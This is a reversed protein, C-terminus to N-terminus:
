TVTTGPSVLDGTCKEDGFVRRYTDTGYSTPLPDGELIKFTRRGDALREARLFLPGGGLERQLRSALEFMHTVYAVRVGAGVMARLIEAAVESGELENTSAFSENCFLFSGARIHTAIENMRALEEDFKGSQMTVDEERKFHTFVATCVNARFHRAPVFAGCQMMMQALGLARLFTSKGGQNAGTVVLLTKGAARVDNGTVPGPARLSLGVDYLDSAELAPRGLPLPEPRCVTEGKQALTDYLNLCGVYFGLEASVLTLFSRIHEASQAAANAVQNIARARLGDLVQHGGDDRAPVEFSYGSRGLSLREKWGKARPSLLVHGKSSFGEALGAGILVGNHFRLRSLHKQVEDLYPDDLEQCIMDFFRRFGASSFTAASTTAIQHLQKLYTVFVDIADVARYLVLQPSGSSLGWVKRETEVAEVATSYLRRVATPNSLCDALVDQRYSIAVPDVLGLLFARRCLQFVREDGGAMATWVTGLGLDQALDEANVPLPATLDFDSAEHMLYAKM